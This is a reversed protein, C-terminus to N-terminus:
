KLLLMIIASLANLQPVPAVSVTVTGNDSNGQGDDVLVTISCDQGSGTMNSPAIWTPTQSSSDSFSGNSSLSPCSTSWSYSLTHGLSDNASVSLSTTENSSVDSSSATPGSIIELTHSISAVSVSVAGTDSEGQGDSAIVSLSCSVSSGTVNSPATWTPQQLSANNFSGNDSLGFCSASWNYFIGHSFSDTASVSLSTSGVSDVHTNSTTPGSSIVVTHSLPVPAVSVTVTGNDSDGQGDDVLVTISCDQDSGTMNSPAIWTPTQSTSDSFGGNSSLSPCSTSWSYSLTHGLSDNASVSLSTTENSSVDSSSATPGSIIELTHSISAVSVSVAGTDSEGQGDSAIVSLSCSVSSGTVNSPATWTPQQLSANNFSGNDSLGFCSASWNYFIGHSFSDTASVSLSTSGVSDVHTNSTTPGSSIVVTHSLPTGMRDPFLSDLAQMEALAKACVDAYQSPSPYYPEVGNDSGAGSPLIETCNDLLGGMAATGFSYVSIGRISNIEIYEKILNQYRVIDEELPHLTLNGAAYYPFTILFKDDPNAISSSLLSIDAHLNNLDKYRESQNYAQFSIEDVNAISDIDSLGSSTWDQLISVGVTWGLDSFYLAIYETLLEDLISGFHEINIHISNPFDTHEDLWSDLKTDIASSITAFIQSKSGFLNGGFETNLIFDVVDTGVNFYLRTDDFLSYAWKRSSSDASTFSISNDSVQLGGTNIYVRNFGSESLYSFLTINENNSYTAIPALYVAKIDDTSLFAGQVNSQSSDTWPNEDDGPFAAGALDPAM